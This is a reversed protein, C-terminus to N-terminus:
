DILITVTTALAMAKVEAERLPPVCFTNNWQTLIEFVGEKSLEKGILSHAKEMLGNNRQGKTFKKM